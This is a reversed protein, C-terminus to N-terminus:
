DSHFLYASLLLKHQKTVHSQSAYIKYFVIGATM